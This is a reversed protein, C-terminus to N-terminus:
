NTMDETVSRNDDSLSVYNFVIVGCQWSLWTTGNCSAVTLCDTLVGVVVRGQFNEAGNIGTALANITVPTKPKATNICVSLFLIGYLNIISDGKNM